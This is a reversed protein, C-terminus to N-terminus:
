ATDRWIRLLGTWHGLMWHGLMWYGLLSCALRVKYSGLQVADRVFFTGLHDCRRAEKVATRPQEAAEKSPKGNHAAKVQLAAIEAAPHGVEYGEAGGGAQEAPEHSVELLAQLLSRCLRGAGRSNGASNTSRHTATAPQLPLEVGM